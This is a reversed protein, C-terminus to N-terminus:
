FGWLELVSGTMYNGASLFVTMSNVAATNRWSGGIARIRQGAVTNTQINYNESKFSKSFVSDAYRPLLLDVNGTNGATGTNGTWSAILASTAGATGISIVSSDFSILQQYDYNATADGNLRILLDDEVSAVSSRGHGILNLNSFSSPISSFTKTGTTNDATYREILTWGGGLTGPKWLSSPTDFLLAQGNTPPNTVTDVDSLNDLTANLDFTRNASLDGGGDLGFGAIVQTTKDAKLPIAEEVALQSQGRDRIMRLFYDTPTGDPNVIPFKSDLNQISM